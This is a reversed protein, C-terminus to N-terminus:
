QQEIVIRISDGEQLVYDSPMVDDGNVAVTVNYGEGDAYEEDQFTVSNDAVTIGLTDMAYELTVGTAHAHWRYPSTDSEDEFHFRRDQLQYQQQSFDVEDGLVVMRIDGHYHASGPEGIDSSGGSGGTFFIVYAVLAAALLVVGGLALPAVAIGDDDSSRDDVRRQDIAGLDDYHEEDLHALYADEDDFSAECYDCDPM